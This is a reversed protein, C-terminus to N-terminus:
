ASQRLRAKAAASLWGSRSEGTAEAAQDISNLLSEEVSINVRVSRGPLEFPVYALVAGKAAERFDPDSELQALTRFPPLPEGDEVMGALHFTLLDSAKRIAEEGSDGATVTGPFDPFSIGFVGNEEHVLGYALPM